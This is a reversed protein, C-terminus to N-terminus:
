CFQLPTVHLEYIKQIKKIYPIVTGLKIMTPYTHCIKPLHGKQGWEWGHAAGFFSMKFLTLYCWFRFYLHSMRSGWGVRLWQRDFCGWIFLSCCFLTEQEGRIPQKRCQTGLILISFCFLYEKRVTISSPSGTNFDKMLIVFKLGGYRGLVFKM